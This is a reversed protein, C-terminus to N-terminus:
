ALSRFEVLFPGLSIHNIICRTCVNISPPAISCVTLSVVLESSLKNAYTFVDVIGVMDVAPVKQLQVFIMEESVPLVSCLFALLDLPRWSTLPM